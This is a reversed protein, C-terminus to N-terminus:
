GGMRGERRAKADASAKNAGKCTAFHSVAFGLTRDAPTGHTMSPVRRVSVAGPEMATAEYITAIHDLPIRKFDPTVGWLIPRGCYRCAVPTM